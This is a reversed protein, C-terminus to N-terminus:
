PLPFEVALFMKFREKAFVSHPHRAPMLIADGARLTYVTGDITIEGQGDLVLVLADGDSAHTSLAEGKDFALLTLRLARSQAITKSVIQGDQYPVQEAFPLVASFELNKM